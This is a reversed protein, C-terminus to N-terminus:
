GTPTWSSGAKPMERQAAEAREAETFTKRVFVEDAAADGMRSVALIDTGIGHIM